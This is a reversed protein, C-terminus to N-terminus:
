LYRAEFRGQDTIFAYNKNTGRDRDTRGGSFEIKALGRKELARATSPSIAVRALSRGLPQENSVLVTGHQALLKLAEKMKETLKEM